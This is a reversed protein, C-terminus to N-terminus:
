AGIASRSEGRGHARFFALLEHALEQPQEVMPWHGSNPLVVVRADKDELRKEIVKATIPLVVKSRAGFVALTRAKIEPLLLDLLHARDGALMENWVQQYFGRDAALAEGRQKRVAPTLAPPKHMVLSLFADYGAPAALILPNRGRALAKDLESQGPVKLGLPEVLTLSAVEVPMAYAYSAAVIAGVSHGVLHFMGLDISKALTRLQRAISTADYKADVERFNSGFGPMDPVVVHYGAAELYPVVPLWQEKDTGFGHLLMVTPGKKSGIFYGIETRGVTVRKEELGAVGGAGGKRFRAFTGRKWLVYLLATVGVAEVLFLWSMPADV